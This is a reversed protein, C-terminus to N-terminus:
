RIFTRPKKVRDLIWHGAFLIALFILGVVLGGALPILHEAM